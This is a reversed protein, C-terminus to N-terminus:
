RESRLQLKMKIVMTERCYAGVANAARVSHFALPEWDLIFHFSSLLKPRRAAPPGSELAILNGVGSALV